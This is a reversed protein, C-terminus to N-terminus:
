TSVPVLHQPDSTSVLAAGLTRILPTALTWKPVISLSSLGCMTPVSHFSRIQSPTSCDRDLPHLNWYMVAFADQGRQVAMATQLHSAPQGLCRCQEQGLRHSVLPM